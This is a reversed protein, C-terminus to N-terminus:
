NFVKGFHERNYSLYITTIFIIIGYSLWMNINKGAFQIFTFINNYIILSLGVIGIIFTLIKM